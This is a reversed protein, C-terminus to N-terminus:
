WGLGRVWVEGRVRACMGRVGAAMSVGEWCCTEEEPDEEGGEGVVVVHDPRCGVAGAVDVEVDELRVELEQM